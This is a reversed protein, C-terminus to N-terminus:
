KPAGPLFRYFAPHSAFVIKIFFGAELLPFYLSNRRVCVFRDDPDWFNDPNGYNTNLWLGDDNREVNFLNLDGDSDSIHLAGEM